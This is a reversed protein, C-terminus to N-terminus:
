QFEEPEVMRYLLVQLLVLVDLGNLLYYFKVVKGGRNIESWMRIYHSKLLGNSILHLLPQFTILLLFTFAHTSNESKPPMPEIKVATTTAHLSTSVEAVQCPVSALPERKVLDTSNASPSVGDGNM